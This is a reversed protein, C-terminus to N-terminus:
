GRTRAGARAWSGPASRERHVSGARGGGSAGGAGTPGHGVGELHLSGEGEAGMFALVHEFAIRAQEFSSAVIVTEGRTVALPGDVTAAAIGAVLTTKGNARAVSLAASTVGPRFAGRVFRREWPFVTVREGALRGQSVTLGALYAILEAPNRAM